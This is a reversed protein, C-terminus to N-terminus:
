GSIPKELDLCSDPLSPFRVKACSKLMSCENEPTVTVIILTEAPELAASDPEDLAAYASGIFKGLQTYRPYNSASAAAYEAQQVDSMRSYVTGRLPPEAL